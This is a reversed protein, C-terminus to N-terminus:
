PPLRVPRGASWSVLQGASWSVPASIKDCGGQNNIPGLHLDADTLPNGCRTEAMLRTVREALRDAIGRQLYVSEAANCVQGGDLVRPNFLADATLDADSLM